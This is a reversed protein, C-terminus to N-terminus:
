AVLEVLREQILEDLLQMVDTTCQEAPVDYEQQNRVVIEQITPTNELMLWIESAVPNLNYYEGNQVSMLVVEDDVSCSVQSDSQRLRDNLNLTQKTTM